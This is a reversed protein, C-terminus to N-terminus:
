ASHATESVGAGAAVNRSGEFMLHEFLHAQGTRGATEDRSGVGYSLATAVGPVAHEPSAVVRLGNDLRHETVPYNLSM